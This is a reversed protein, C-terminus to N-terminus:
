SFTLTDIDFTTTPNVMHCEREMQEKTGLLPTVM